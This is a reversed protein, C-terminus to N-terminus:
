SLVTIRIMVVNAVSRIMCIAVFMARNVFMCIVIILMLIADCIM